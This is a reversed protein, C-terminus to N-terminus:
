DFLVGPNMVAPSNWNIGRSMLIDRREHWYAFCFGMGRPHGALRKACEAEVEAIIEEFGETREVPDFLLHRRYKKCFTEMTMAPDIYDQLAALKRANEEDGPNLRKIENRVAICLRPSLFEDMQDLMMSLIGGKEEQTEFEGPMQDPLKGMMDFAIRGLGINRWNEGANANEVMLAFSNGLYRIIKEM